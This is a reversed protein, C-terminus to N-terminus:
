KYPDLSAAKFFTTYGNAVNKQWSTSSFKLLRTTSRFVLVFPMQIHTAEFRPWKIISKPLVFQLLALHIQIPPVRPFSIAISLTYTDMSIFALYMRQSIRSLFKGLFQLHIKHPWQFKTSYANLLDFVFPLITKNPFLLIKKRRVFAKSISSVKGVFLLIFNKNFLLVFSM